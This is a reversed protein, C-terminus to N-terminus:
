ESFFFTEVSTKKKKKKLEGSGAAAIAIVQWGDDTRLCRQVIEGRFNRPWNEEFKM